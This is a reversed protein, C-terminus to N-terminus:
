AHTKSFELSVWLKMKDRYASSLTKNDKEEM